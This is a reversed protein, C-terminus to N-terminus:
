KFLKIINILLKWKFYHKSIIIVEEHEYIQRKYYNTDDHKYKYRNLNSYLM